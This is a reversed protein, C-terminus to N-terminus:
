LLIMFGFFLSSTGLNLGFTNTREQNLNSNEFDRINHTYGLSGFSAQLLVTESLQYNIGPRVSVGYSNRNTETESPGGGFDNETTSSTNSYRAEAQINFAFKEGIPFFKTLYPFFGFANTIQQSTDFNQLNEIDNKAYGYSLGLGLILNKNIAYGVKPSFGFSFSSEDNIEEFERDTTNIRFNGEL